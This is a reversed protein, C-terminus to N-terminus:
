LGGRSGGRGAEECGASLVARKPPWPAPPRTSLEPLVVPTRPVRAPQSRNPLHQRRGRGLWAAAPQSVPWRIRSESADDGEKGRARAAALGADAAARPCPGGRSGPEEMVPDTNQLAPRISRSLPAPLWRFLQQPSWAAGQVFGAHGRDCPSCASTAPLCARGKCQFSRATQSLEPCSGGEVAAAPRLVRARGAPGQGRPSAAGLLALSERPKGAGAGDGWFSGPASAEAKGPM